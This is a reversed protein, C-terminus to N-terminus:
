SLLMPQVLETQDYTFEMLAGKFGSNNENQKGLLLQISLGQSQTGATEHFRISNRELVAKSRQLAPKSLLLTTCPCLSFCCWWLCCTNLKPYKGWKKVLMSTFSQFDMKHWM